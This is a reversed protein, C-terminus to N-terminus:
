EGQASENKSVRWVRIKLSPGLVGLGARGQDAAIRAIQNLIFHIRLFDSVLSM